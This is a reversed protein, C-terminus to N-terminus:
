RLVSCGVTVRLSKLDFDVPHGPQNGIGFIFRVVHQGTYHGNVPASGLGRWAKTSSNVTLASSRTLVFDNASSSYVLPVIVAYGRHSYGYMQFTMRGYKIADPLRLNYGTLAVGQRNACTVSLLVGGSFTSNAKSVGAGCGQHNAAAFAGGAHNIVKTTKVLKKLSVYVSYNATTRHNGAADTETYNFHYRGAPVLNGASNRGNWTFVLHDPGFTLGRMTRVVVGNSNKITLTVHGAESVDVTTTWSDHYGDRVPYFTAGGGHVSTLSPLTSDVDVTGTADDAPTGDSVTITYTGDAVALSDNDRGDWTWQWPGATQAGIDLDYVPVDGATVHVSVDSEDVGLTYDVTTTSFGNGNASFPNPSVSNITIPPTLAEAISPVALLAVGTAAAALLTVGRRVSLTSRM